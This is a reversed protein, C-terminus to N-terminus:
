DASFFESESREETHCNSSEFSTLRARHSFLGHRRINSSNIIICRVFEGYLKEM